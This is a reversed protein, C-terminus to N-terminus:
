KLMLMKKVSSFNKHNQPDDSQVDIKYIYMGSALDSGDFEVEYFGVEQKQNILTAVEKGLIDFVKITVLGNVPIQYKIMTSPNFPNPYNQALEYTKITTLSEITIEEINDKPLDDTLYDVKTVLNMKANINEEITLLLKVKRSKSDKTKVKYKKTTLDSNNNAKIKLRKLEDILLGTEADILMVSVNIKDNNSLKINSNDKFQVGFIFNLEIERDLEFAESVLYDQFQLLAPDSKIGLTDGSFFGINDGNVEINGMQAYLKEEGIDFNVEKVISSSNGNEKPLGSQGYQQFTYPVSTTVLTSLLMDSYNSGIGNCVKVDGPYSQSYSSNLNSTKVYRGNYSNNGYAIVVGGHGSTNANVSTLDTGSRSYTYTSTGWYTGYYVRIAAERIYTIPHEATWSVVFNDGAYDAISPSSNNSYGLSSSVDYYGSFNVVDNAMDGTMKYYKINSGQQWALHFTESSNNEEVVSATYSSSNTNPVIGTAENVFGHGNAFGYWYYVGPTVGWVSPIDYVIMLQGNYRWGVSQNTFTVGAPLNLSYIHLPTQYSYSDYFNIVIKGQEQYAIIVESTGKRNVIVPSYSNNSSLPQGNNMITWTDGNDTSTEYWVKDMSEYVKHIIGDTTKAIRRQNNAGFTYNNSTLNTGKYNATYTASSSPSISRSLNTNGDSWQWFNYTNGGNSLTSQISVNEALPAAFIYESKPFTHPSGSINITGFSGFGGDNYNQFTVSHSKELEATFRDDETIPETRLTAKGPDDDWLNFKYHLNNYDVGNEESKFTHTSNYDWAFEFGSNYPQFSSGELHYVNGQDYREEVKNRVKVFRDGKLSYKLHLEDGSYELAPVDSIFMDSFVGPTIETLALNITPMLNLITREFFLNALTGLLGNLDGWSSINEIDTFEIMLRYGDNANGVLNIEGDFEGSMHEVVDFDLAVADINVMMRMDTVYLKFRNTSILDITASNVNGVWYQLVGTSDATFDGFNFSRAAIFAELAKNIESESIKIKFDEQANINLACFCTIVLLLKKILKM